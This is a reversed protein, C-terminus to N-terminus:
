YKGSTSGIVFICALYVATDSDYETALTLMLGIIPIFAARWYWKFWVQQRKCYRYFAVVFLSYLIFGIIGFDLYNNLFINHLHPEGLYVPSYKTLFGHASLFGSGWLSLEKFHDWFTSWYILRIGMGDNTDLLSDVRILRMLMFPSLALVALILVVRRGARLHKYLVYVLGLVLAVMPTRSNSLFACLLVIFTRWIPIQQHSIFYNLIYVFGFLAIRGGLVNKDAMGWFCLRPDYMLSAASSTDAIIHEFGAYRIYVALQLLTLAFSIHLVKDLHRRLVQVSNLSAWNVVAILFLNNVILKVFNSVAEVGMDPQDSLGQLGFGRFLATQLLVYCIYALLWGAWWMKKMRPSTALLYIATCFFLVPYIKFPSFTSLMSISILASGIWEKTVILRTPLSIDM